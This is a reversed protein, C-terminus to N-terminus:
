RKLGRWDEPWDEVLVLGLVGERSRVIQWWDCKERAAQERAEVQTRFTGRYDRYGGRPYYDDGAFVHYAYLPESM